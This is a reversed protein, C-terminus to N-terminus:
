REGERRERLLRDTPLPPPGGRLPDTGVETGTSESPLCMASPDSCIDTSYQFPPEGLWLGAQGGPALNQMVGQSLECAGAGLAAIFEPALENDTVINNLKKQM